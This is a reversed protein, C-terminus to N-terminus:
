RVRIFRADNTEELFHRLVFNSTQQEPPYCLTRTPTIVIKSILATNPLSKFPLDSVRNAVSNITGELDTIRELHFLAQLIRTAKPITELFPEMLTLLEAVQYDIIKGFSLLGEIAYLIKFDISPTRPFARLKLYPDKKMEPLKVRPETSELSFPFMKSAKIWTRFKNIEIARIEFRYTLWRGLQILSCATLEFEIRERLKLM